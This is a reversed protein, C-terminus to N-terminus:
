LKGIQVVVRFCIETESSHPTKPPEGWNKVMEPWEWKALILVRLKPGQDVFSQPVTRSMSFHGVITSM